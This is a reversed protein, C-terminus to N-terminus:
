IISEYHTVQAHLNIPQEQMSELSEIQHNLLYILGKLLGNRWCIWDHGGRFEQYFVQHGVDQLAHSMRQNDALMSDEYCGIEQYIQLPIAPKKQTIVQQILWGTQEPLHSDPWWFSGSQSLVAGFRDPWFLGAYLAALGGFSQGAVITKQPNDTFPQQQLVQPLLEQQIAQWFPANCPLEQARHEPDICDILVYVAPPLKQQRTLEDLPGFVPMHQAWYQGDLVIVLPLDTQPQDAQPQNTGGADSCYIWIRRQNGLLRSQWQQETVRGQLAPCIGQDFRQWVPLVDAQPLQVQSLPMGWSGQHMPLHNFRDTQAQQQMTNIWWHRIKQKNQQGNQEPPPPAQQQTVPMLFYSGCWDNPVTIQWFWVNTQGFKQLSTLQETPHPTKSYLDIFVHSYCATDSVTVPERWLFTLLCHQADQQCFLPTGQQAVQQWWASSGIDSQKLLPEPQM